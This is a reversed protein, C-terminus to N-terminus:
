TEIVKWAPDTNKLDREFTWQDEVAEQASANGEIIEGEANRVLPVQESLFDVTITAKNGRLEASTIDAKVIAVLTSHAKKGEKENADLTAKFERYIRDSLLMKLTDHDADNFADLVMEYAAKAGSLFEEANFDADIARMSAFQDAFQAPEKLVLAQVLEKRRSADREALQVVPELNEVIRSRTIESSDRGRQEGLMSRYRLLIFAAIAAIVIIDGYPFGGEVIM